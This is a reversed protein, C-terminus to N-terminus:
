FELLMGSVRSDLLCNRSEVHMDPAIGSNIGYANNEDSNYVPESFLVDRLISECFCSQGTEEYKRCRALTRKAFAMALQKSVKSAGSKHSSGHSGRGGQWFLYSSENLCKLLTCFIHSILKRLICSIAM